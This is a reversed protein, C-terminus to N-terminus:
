IDEHLKYTNSLLRKLKNLFLIYQDITAATLQLSISMNSELLRFPLKM